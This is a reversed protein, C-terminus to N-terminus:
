EISSENSFLLAKVEYFSGARLLRKGKRYVGFVREVEKATGRYHVLAFQSTLVSVDCEEELYEDEKDYGFKIMDERCTRLSINERARRGGILKLGLVLAIGHWVSSSDRKNLNPSPGRIEVELM